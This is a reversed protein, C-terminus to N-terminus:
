AIEIFRQVLTFDFVKKLTARSINAMRERHRLDAIKMREGMFVLATGQHVGRLTYLENGVDASVALSHHEFATAVQVIRSAAHAAIHDAGQVAPGVRVLALQQTRRM